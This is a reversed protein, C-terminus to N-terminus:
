QELSDNVDPIELVPRIEVSGYKAAPIMAALEIAKDLNECDLVYVGGLVEKTEAFPGDFTTAKGDQVRVTTASTHPHLPLADNMAGQEIAKENFAMYAQYDKQEEEESMGELASLDNYILIMYRM